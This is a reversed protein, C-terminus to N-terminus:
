HVGGQTMKKLDLAADLDEESMLGKELVVERVTRGTAFAEKAAASGNDYGIHPNLATVVIVNKELLMQAREADAEIGDVCKEALV